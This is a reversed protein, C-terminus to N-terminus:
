PKALALRLALLALIVAIPTFVIKETSTQAALNGIINLIFYGFVIWTAISAARMLRPMILYGAKIGVILAMIITIIVGFTELIILRDTSDDARGGWVIGPPIVGIIVLVHFLVLLGLLALMIKAATKTSIIDRM